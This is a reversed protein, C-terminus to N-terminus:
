LCTVNSVSRVGEYNRPCFLLATGGEIYSLEKMLLENSIREGSEVWFDRSRRPNSTPRKTPLLSNMPSFLVTNLVYYPLNPTNDFFFHGM